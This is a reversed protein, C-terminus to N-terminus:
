LGHWPKPCMVWHGNVFTLGDFAMGLDEGPKVFKFRYWTQHATLHPAVKKWGGPFERANGKGQQLDESTAAWLKLETQGAKPEIVMPEKDWHEDYQPQLKGATPADFLAAYDAKTPRLPKTLAARDAGPALFKTLLARAGAEDGKEGTAGAVAAGATTGASAAPNTAATAAASAAANTTETLSTATGSTAGADGSNRHLLNCGCLIGVAGVVM